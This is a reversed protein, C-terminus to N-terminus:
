FKKLIFKFLFIFLIIKRNIILYFNNNSKNIIKEINKKMLYYLIFINRIIKIYIFRIINFEKQNYFLIQSKQTRLSNHKLWKLYNKEEKKLLM